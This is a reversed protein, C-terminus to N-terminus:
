NEIMKKVQRKIKQKKNKNFHKKWPKGQRSNSAYSTTSTQDWNTDLGEPTDDDGNHDGPRGVQTGLKRGKSHMNVREQLFWFLFEVYCHLVSYFTLLFNTHIYM